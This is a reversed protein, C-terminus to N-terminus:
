LMKMLVEVEEESLTKFKEEDSLEYMMAELLLTAEEESLSSVLLEPSLSAAYHMTSVLEFGQVSGKSQSEAFEAQLNTHMDLRLAALMM